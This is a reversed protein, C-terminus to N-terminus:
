KRELINSKWNELLVKPKEKIPEIKNSCALNVELETKSKLFETSKLKDDYKILTISTKPRISVTSKPRKKDYNLLHGQNAKNYAVATKPRIKKRRLYNKENEIQSIIPKKGINFSEIFYPQDIEKPCDDIIKDSDLTPSFSSNNLKDEKENSIKQTISFYTHKPEKEFINKM